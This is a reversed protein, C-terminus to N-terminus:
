RALEGLMRNREYRYWDGERYAQMGTSSSTVGAAVIRDGQMRVEDVPIVAKTEGMGEMGGTDVVVATALTGRNVVVEDITGIRQGDADYVIKRYLDEPRVARFEPPIRTSTHTGAPVM